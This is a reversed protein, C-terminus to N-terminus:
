KYNSLYFQLSNQFQMKKKIRGENINLVDSHYEGYESSRIIRVLVYGQISFNGLRITYDYFFNQLKIKKEIRRGNTNFM